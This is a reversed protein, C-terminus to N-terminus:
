KTIVSSDIKGQAEFWYQTEKFFFYKLKVVNQPCILFVFWYM